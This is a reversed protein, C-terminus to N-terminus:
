GGAAVQGRRRDLKCIWDQVTSAAALLQEVFREDERDQLVLVLRLIKLRLRLLLDLFQERMIVPRERREGSRWTANWIAPSCM